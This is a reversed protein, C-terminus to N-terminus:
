SMTSLHCTQLLKSKMPSPVSNGSGVWPRAQFADSSHTTGFQVGEQDYGLTDDLDKPLPFSTLFESLVDSGLAAPRFNQENPSQPEM